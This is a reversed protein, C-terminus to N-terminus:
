RRETRLLRVGELVGDLPAGSQDIAGPFKTVVESALRDAEEFKGAAALHVAMLARALAGVQVGSECWAASHRSVAQKLYREREAGSTSQALELVACGARQSAPYDAILTLLTPRGDPRLRGPFFRDDHASRYRTEIDVIQSGSFISGDQQVQQRARERLSDLHAQRELTTENVVPPQQFSAAAILAVLVLTM